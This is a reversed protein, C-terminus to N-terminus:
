GYHDGKFLLEQYEYYGNEQDQLLELAQIAGYAYIAKNLTHHTITIEEHDGMLHISHTGIHTGGRLSHIGIEESNRKGVAGCRGYVEKFIRLDRITDLFLQVTGSPADQKYRHHTEVIEIDHDELVYPLLVKIMRNMIQIGHSYNSSYCVRHTRGFYQLLTFQDISYGTTGIIVICNCLSLFKDLLVLKSTHSFDFLVQTTQSLEIYNEENLYGLVEYGNMTLISELTNGMKGSGLIVTRM